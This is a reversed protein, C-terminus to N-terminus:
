FATAKWTIIDGSATTGSIVCTTTSLPTTQKVTDAATTIDWADCEWGNTATGGPTITVTCTGATGSHFSGAWGGGLAATLSCGSVTQTGAAMAPIFKTELTPNWLDVQQLGGGDLKNYISIAGGNTGSTGVNLAAKRAPIARLYFNLNTANGASGGILSLADNLGAGSSVQMGPTTDYVTADNTPSDVFFYPPVPQTHTADFIAGGDPKVFVNFQGGNTGVRLMQTVVVRNVISKLFYGTNVENASGVLSLVDDPSTIYNFSDIVSSGLFLYSSLTPDNSGTQFGNLVSFNSGQGYQGLRCTYFNGTDLDTYPATCGGLPNLPAGHGQLPNGQAWVFRPCLCLALILLFRRM